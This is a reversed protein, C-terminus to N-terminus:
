RMGKGGGGFKESGEKCRRLGELSERMGELAMGVVEM